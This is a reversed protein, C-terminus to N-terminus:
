REGGNGHDAEVASMTGPDPGPPPRDESCASGAGARVESGAAPLAEGDRRLRVGRWIRVGKGGKAPEFGRESLSFALSKQSRAREGNEECWKTYAAYLASAPVTAGAEPVCSAEVFGAFADMEERYSATAAKVDEPVGLGNERWALCGRVAWALIGPLEEALKQPLRPDKEHEPITVTFPVLRVRRWIGHDGGSIAPKHNAALWIKFRPKFDFFEKFLFRATITDSGTLQKIFSEALPKGAEAEVASVLRTGVLRAIDNRAGDNDRKLFTNFDAVASLDGMVARITELFTSKGNSGLGYLLFFVHEETHGTLSYGIARQLFAVLSENGGMAHLLFAEWRPCTASPDYPVPALRTLWDDRDHPRLEGTRLDLTGNAVNLLDVDRDLDDTSVPLLSQAISLMAGMRASSESDLAHKLLVDRQDEDPVEAAMTATARLTALAGRTAEGSTDRLWRVGNYHFWSGWTHVYAFREGHLAQFREANGADTANLMILPSAADYRLLSEVIGLVEQELLPPVCREENAALLFAALEARDAGRRRMTGGLSMLGASRHGPALVHAREDRRGASAKAAGVGGVSQLARDVDVARGHEVRIWAAALREPPCAAVFWIRCVDRANADALKGLAGNVADWVSGYEAPMIPRSVPLAVRFCCDDPGAAGHSFSSYAVRAWGRSSLRAFVAAAHESSLHDFDLVLATAEVVGSKGRTAGEHYRVPSFAPTGMKTTRPLHRRGVLDLLLGDFPIPARAKEDRFHVARLTCDEIQLVPGLSSPQDGASM